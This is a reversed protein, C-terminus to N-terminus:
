YRMVVQEEGLLTRLQALLDNTPHVHWQVALNLNAKAFENIYAFQVVCRGSNAKLINQIAPLVAKNNQNLRYNWVVLLNLVRVPLM